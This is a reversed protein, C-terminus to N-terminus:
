CNKYDNKPVSLPESYPIFNFRDLGVMAFGFFYKYLIQNM